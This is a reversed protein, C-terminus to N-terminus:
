HGQQAGCMVPAAVAQRMKAQKRRMRRKASQPLESSTSVAESTISDSSTTSAPDEMKRRVKMKPVEQAERLYEDLIETVGYVEITAQLAANVQEDFPGRVTMNTLPRYVEELREQILQVLLRSGPLSSGDRHYLLQQLAKRANDDESKVGVEAVM